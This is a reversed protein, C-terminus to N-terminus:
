NKKVGAKKVPKKDKKGDPKNNNFSKNLRPELLIQNGKVIIEKADLAKQQDSKNKFDVLAAKLSRKYFKIDGFQKTLANKLDDDGVEVNKVYIPFWDDKKFKNGNSNAQQPPSGAKVAPPPTTKVVTTSLPVSAIKSSTKPEIAALTAWTQKQPVPKELEATTANDTPAKFAPAEETDQTKVIIASAIQSSPESKVETETPEENNQASASATTEDIKDEVKPTTSVAISALKEVSSAELEIDTDGKATTEAEVPADSKLNETAKAPQQEVHEVVVRKEQYDESLDFFRLVDNAVDYLTKGKASLVFTQLFQWLKSMGKKWSGCVVILISGDVSEQFDASEIVIKSKDTNTSQSNYYTKIADTGSAVHVTRAQKATHEDSSSPFGDHLLSAKKDYFSYLSCAATAYTSYYKKIFLWGVSQISLEPEKSAPSDIGNSVPSKFPKESKEMAAPATTSSSTKQSM